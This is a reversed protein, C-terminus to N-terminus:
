WNSNLLLVWAVLKSVTSQDKKSVITSLSPKAPISMSPHFLVLVDDWFFDSNPSLSLSCEEISNKKANKPSTQRSGRARELIRELIMSWCGLIAGLCSWVALSAIHNQGSSNSLSSRYLWSYWRFKEEHQSTCAYSLARWGCDGKGGTDLRTSNAPGPEGGALRRANGKGGGKAREAPAPATEEHKRKLPYNGHDLLISLFCNRSRLWKGSLCSQSCSFYRWFPFFDMDWRSTGMADMEAMWFKQSIQIITPPSSNKLRM